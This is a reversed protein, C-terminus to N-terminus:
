LSMMQNSESVSTSQFRILFLQLPLETPPAVDNIVDDCAVRKGPGFTSVTGMDEERPGVWEDVPEAGKGVSWVEEAAEPIPLGEKLVATECSMANM